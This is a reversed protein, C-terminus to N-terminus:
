NGNNKLINLIITQYDSERPLIIELQDYYKTLVDPMAKLEFLTEVARIKDRLKAASEFNEDMIELEMLFQLKRIIGHGKNELEFIFSRIFHDYDGQKFDKNKCPSLCRQVTNRFCSLPYRDNPTIENSSNCVPIVTLFADMAEDIATQNKIPGYIYSEPMLTQYCTLIRPIEEGLTIEIFPYRWMSRNVVPRFASILCGELTLAEEETDTIVYDIKTTNAIIKEKKKREKDYILSPYNDIYRDRFEWISLAQKPKFKKDFTVEKFFKNNGKRFHDSIRKKLNVSKGIYIIEKEHFFFYVGPKEPLDAILENLTNEGFM